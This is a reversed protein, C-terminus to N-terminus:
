KISEAIKILESKGIEGRESLSYLIGNYEWDISKEDIMIANENNVKVEELKGDTAMGYATEEDSIRQHMNIYKGTNQNIFYVEIYKSNKVIGEKGKYFEARDFEYGEPLYSPLIVNFCTYDSLKNVDKVVFYKEKNLVEEEKVSIIEGSNIDIRAIEGGDGMYIKGSGIFEESFVELMNGDKDFIKGKLNEPIPYTRKQPEYQVAEINKLSIIKVIKDIVEQAFSTKIMSISLIGILLFSAVKTIPYKIKKLRKMENEGRYENINKLARDFVEKKNSNKSFDKSALAKTIELVEKYEESDVSSLGNIGKFYDDIEKSCGDQINRDNV